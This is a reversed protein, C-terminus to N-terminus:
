WASSVAPMVFSRGIRIFFGGYRVAVRGSPSAYVGPLFILVQKKKSCERLV